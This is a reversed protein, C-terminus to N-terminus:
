KKTIRCTLPAGAAEDCGEEVPRTLVLSNTLPVIKQMFSDRLEDSTHVLGSHAVFPLIVEPTLGWQSAMSALAEAKVDNGDHRYVFLTAEPIGEVPKEVTVLVVDDCREDSADQVLPACPVHTTYTHVSFYDEWSLTLTGDEHREITRVM